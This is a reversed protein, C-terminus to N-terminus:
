PRTASRTPSPSCSWSTACDVPIRVGGMKQLPLASSAEPRRRQPQVAPRLDRQDLHRGARRHRDRGRRGTGGPGLGDPHDRSRGALLLGGGPRGHPPQRRRARHRVGQGPRLAPNPSTSARRPAGRHRPDTTMTVDSGSDRRHAPRRRPPPGARRPPRDAAGVVLPLLVVHWLLMQGPELVNFYAGVGISNLGDKAQASIWQSDFNSQSLYGTFATGISAVFAVVGTIWTLTRRGRWAAMWFKGWLHIVM